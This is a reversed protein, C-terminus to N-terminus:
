RTSHGIHPLSTCLTSMASCTSTQRVFPRPSSEFCAPGPTPAPPDDRAGSTAAVSKPSLVLVPSTGLAETEAAPVADLVPPPKLEALANARCRPMGATAGPSSTSRRALPAAAVVM